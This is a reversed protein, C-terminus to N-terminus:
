NKKEKTIVKKNFIYETPETELEPAKQAATKPMVHAFLKMYQACYEAPKKKSLKGLNIFYEGVRENLGIKIKEDLDALIEINGAANEAAKKNLNNDALKSGAAMVKPKLIADLKENKKVIEKETKLGDKTLDIM